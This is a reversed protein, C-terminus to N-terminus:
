REVHQAAHGVLRAPIAVAAVLRRAPKRPQEHRFDFQVVLSGDADAALLAIQAAAQLVLDLACSAQIFLAYRGADARPVGVELLLEHLREGVSVLAQESVLGNISRTEDSTM